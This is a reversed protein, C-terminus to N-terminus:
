GGNSRTMLRRAARLAAEVEPMGGNAKLTFILDDIGAEVDDVLRERDGIPATVARNTTAISTEQGNSVPPADGGEVTHDAGSAGASASEGLTRRRPQGLERKVKFFVSASITGANGSASWARNVAAVNAEPERGLVEVVFASKSPGPGGEPGNPRSPAEKAKPASKGKAGKPSSKAKGKATPGADAGGRAGRKGALKLRSRAKSVLSESVTGDNGAAKWAENVAPHDADRHGVLFEEVFATKGQNVGPGTAM